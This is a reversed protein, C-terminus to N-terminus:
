HELVARLFQRTRENEPDRLVQQPPGQEVASGHDFMVVRDSIEEAFRMEHTVMLMTMDTSKALDRIVNLVEGILEPDLASTPEDFLLVKPRMAMARAIAVRQQQGGSLQPPKHDLHKSLGVMDLLGNARERAEEKSMGLVQVPAEMVNQITTLHPFLNFQQFVMGIKRRTLRMRKTERPLRAGRTVNWLHDGDVTVVGEDPTELTMLIRLITTKGSGSPGIISVKEGPKVDFNLSRLVHNDGWSKDVNEFSIM